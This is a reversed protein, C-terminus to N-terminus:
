NIIYIYIIYNKMIGKENASTTAGKLKTKRCTHPIKKKLSPTIKKKPRPRLRICKESLLCALGTGRLRYM